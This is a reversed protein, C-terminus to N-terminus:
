VETNITVPTGTSGKYEILAQCRGTIRGYWYRLAGVTNPFRGVVCAAAYLWAGRPEMGANGQRRAIWAAQLPYVLGLLLSAGRTPWALALIMCPMVIGWFLIRRTERVWHREPPRGHM